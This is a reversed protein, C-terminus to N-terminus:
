GNQARQQEVINPKRDDPHVTVRRITFGWGLKKWADDRVKKRAESANAALVESTGHDRHFNWEVLFRRVPVASM